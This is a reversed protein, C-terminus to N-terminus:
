IHKGTVIPPDIVPMRSNLAAEVDPTNIEDQIQKRQEDLEVQNMGVPITGLVNSVQMIGSTDEPNVLSSQPGIPMNFQLSPEDDINLKFEGIPTDLEVNSPDFPDFGITGFDTEIQPNRVTDFLDEAYRFSPSERLMDQLKMNGEYASLDM